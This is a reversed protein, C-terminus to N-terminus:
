WCTAESQRDLRPPRAAKDILEVPDPNAAAWEALKRRSRDIHGDISASTLRVGFDEPLPRSPDRTGFMRDLIMDGTIARYHSVEWFWRMPALDDDTPIPDVTISNTDSFDWLAFPKHGARAAEEENIRVLERLWFEFRGRLDVDDIIRLIAANLPSIFLRLDTGEAYARRVMFRFPDFGSMHTDPHSFCYMREPPDFWFIRWAASAALWRRYIKGTGGMKLIVEEQGRWIRQGRDSFSAPIAQQRVTAVADNLASASFALGWFERAKFLWAHLPPWQLELWELMSAPPLGGVRGDARGVAAYHIFGNRYQGRAVAVRVSPNAALYGAENWEALAFGGLLGLERGVVLYHHYGTSFKKEAMAQAVTPNAELYAAEDWEPPIRAFLRGEARGNALYHAYGSGFQGSAVVQAVDPYLALYLAENWGPPAKAFIRGEAKGNKLYHEYGSGFEGSAVVKAVDPYLTLYFREDWDPPIGGYHRGETKGNKLYHVYGSEFQGSAVVKAVDPYLTLYFTEDWEPPMRAFLRGEVRGAQVYHVYGSPFAGNSVAAAVDPYLALYLREDWDPPLGGYHRGEARGYKLYHEYASAFRGTAIAKAVDPYLLLYFKEDWDQPVRAFLRGEARGNKLYHEYGSKFQGSAVVAAVDPYLTLYLKENWEPPVRAFSRGEAQGNKVYHEYGSGFQGSAVVAAVDPYLALYLSEDWDAPVNGYHRGEAQGHKLYHEYGSAFEGRAVAAAVDPYLALYLRENWGPKWDTLISAANGPVREAIQDKRPEATPPAPEEDPVPKANEEEAAKRASLVPDLFAAFSAVGDGVFRRDDFAPGMKRYINFSLFDLGVVAQRLPAAVAQAHLFALMVEYSNAAPIAFNFAHRDAWGPHEPSLGVEARSSGLAVVKPRLRMVQYPKARVVSTEYLPRSENFGAVSPTGFMWYPDVAVIFGAVLLGLALPISLLRAVSRAFRASSPSSSAPHPSVSAAATGGEAGQGALVGGSSM